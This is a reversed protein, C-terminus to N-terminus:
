FPTGTPQSIASLYANSLQNEDVLLIDFTGWIGMTESVEDTRLIIDTYAPIPDKFARDDFYNSDGNNILSVVKKVKFIKGQRRSRYSLKAFNTGAGVTGTYLMGLEGRWLFGVKGKPVTYIAMLTQNNGNDIIARIDADDDPVGAVSVYTADSTALYITGSLDTTGENEMRYIRWLATDITVPTTGTLTITQEVEFGTADIGAIKIDQTDSNDSSSLQTINATASFQYVGGFEWVDEPDTDTAIVPNLGFKDLTSVGSVQGSTALFEFPEKSAQIPKYNEDVSLNKM